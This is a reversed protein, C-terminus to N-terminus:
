HVAPLASVGGFFRELRSNGNAGRAWDESRLEEATTHLSRAAPCDQFNALLSVEMQLCNQARSPKRIFIVEEVCKDFNLLFM